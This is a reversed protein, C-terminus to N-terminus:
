VCRRTNDPKPTKSFHVPMSPPGIAAHTVDSTPMRSTVPPSGMISQRHYCHQSLGIETQVASKSKRGVLSKYLRVEIQPLPSFCVYLERKCPLRALRQSRQRYFSDVHVSFRGSIPKRGCLIRGSILHKDVHNCCKHNRRMRRGIGWCPTHVLQCRVDWMKVLAAFRHKATSGGCEPEPEAV